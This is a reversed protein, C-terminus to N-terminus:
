RFASEAGVLDDFADGAAAAVLDGAVAQGEGQEEGVQGLSEEDGAEGLEGAGVRRGAAGRQALCRMGVAGGDGVEGLLCRERRIM